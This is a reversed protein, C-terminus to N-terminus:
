VSRPARYGSKAPECEQKTGGGFPGAEYPWPPTGGYKINMVAGRRIFRLYYDKIVGCPEAPSYFAYSAVGHVNEVVTVGGKASAHMDGDEAQPATISEVVGYLRDDSIVRDGPLVAEGTSYKFQSGM